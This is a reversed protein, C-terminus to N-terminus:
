KKHTHYFGSALTAAEKASFLRCRARGIYTEKVIQRENMMDQIEQIEKKEYDYDLMNIFSKRGRREIPSSVIRIPTQKDNVRTMKFIDAAEYKVGLLLIYGNLECVKGLPSESTLPFHLPQKDCILKAYKGWAVFSHTPHNSRFVGDHRMMQDALKNKSACLKKNFAPMADRIVEIQYPKFVQLDRNLPDKNDKTFANTVIGGDYGVVDQLAEIITRNGGCVYSFYNLSSQIYVLMGKQIGLMKFHEVLDDKTILNDQILKTSNIGSQDVM